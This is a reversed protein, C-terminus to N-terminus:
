SLSFSHTLYFSPLLSPSLSLSLPGTIEAPGRTEIQACCSAKSPPKNLQIHNRTAPPPTAWDHPACYPM